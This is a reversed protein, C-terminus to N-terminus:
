LEQNPTTTATSQPDVPLEVQPEVPAPASPAPTEVVAAAEPAPALGAGPASPTPPIAPVPESGPERRAPAPSAPVEASPPATGPRAPPAAPAAPAASPPTGTPGAPRRTEGLRGPRRFDTGVVDRALVFRVGEQILRPLELQLATLTERRVHGIGIAYGHVEAAAALSRLQARTYEVSKKNDLFLANEGYAMGREKAQAAAVSAPTTRSDVFFLNRSSLRNLVTRMVRPDQTARSGMHNNVGDAQPVAALARDVAAEIETESMGVRILGPTSAYEHNEAEMPLHLIVEWGHAQGALALHEGAPLFPIVAMTLPVPLSFFDSAFSQEYGWDDIILAVQPAGGSRPAAPTPQDVPRRVAVPERDPPRVTIKLAEVKMRRGGAKVPVKVELHLSADPGATVAVAEGGALRAGERVAKAYDEPTLERFTPFALLTFTWRTWSIPVPQDLSATARVLDRRVEAPSAGLRLLAADIEAVARDAVGPLYTRETRRLTPASTCGAAVAALVGCLIVLGIRRSRRM